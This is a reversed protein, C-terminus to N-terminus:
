HTANYFAIGYLGNWTLVWHTTMVMTPAAFVPGGSGATGEGTSMM